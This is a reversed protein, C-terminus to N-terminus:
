QKKKSPDSMNYEHWGRGSANKYYRKPTTYCERRKNWRKLSLGDPMVKVVKAAVYGFRGWRVWVTDDPKIEDSPEYYLAM